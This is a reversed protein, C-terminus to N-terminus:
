PNAAATREYDNIQAVSFQRMDQGARWARHWAVTRALAGDSDLRPHWGLQHRARSSDIRLLGAEVPHEGAAVQWRAGEGWHAALRALLRAVNLSDNETPGFNWAGAAEGASLREAVLLYGALPELVHQWPRIAEPSRINLIDGEQWAKLADPVLREPAWDGGGIVNGARVTALGIRDALFSDRWAASVIEACAKSASYPDKGGLAEDERYPWLWERNRYCKDSTVVVVAKVSTQRRVAELLNVTGLVNTAVTGAPDRYAERVLPQAALHFVIEPAAQRLAEHLREGDRVDAEIHHMHQGIRAIEFMSPTTPPPLSYGSVRAGRMQLWLSLWSGKFGTHGTVFVPRDHWFDVGAKAGSNVDLM